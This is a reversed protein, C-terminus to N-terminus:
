VRIEIVSVDAIEGTLYLQVNISLSDNVFRVPVDFEFGAAVQVGSGPPEDMVLIGTTTDLEFASTEAGNLSARVTGPVPKKVLRDWSGFADGYIKKLQFTRNVGDGVGLPQDTPQVAKNPACSKFDSWDKWRFGHLRGKRAEFFVLVAHLDDMSRMGFGADYKRRSNAWVSNREEGGGRLEVIDTLRTPGGSSGRSISTPFQIEHFAM